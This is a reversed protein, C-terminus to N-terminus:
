VPLVHPGARVTLSAPVPHLLLRVASVNPLQLWTDYGGLEWMEWAYEPVIVRGLKEPVQLQLAAGGHLGGTASLVQDDLFLLKNATANGSSEGPGAWVVVILLLVLAPYRTISTLSRMERFSSKLAM